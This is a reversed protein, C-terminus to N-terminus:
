LLRTPRKNYYGCCSQWPPCTPSVLLLVLMLLLLLLLLVQLV